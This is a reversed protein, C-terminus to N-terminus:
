GFGTKWYFKMAPEDQTLKRSKESQSPRWEIRDFACGVTGEERGGQEIKRAENM